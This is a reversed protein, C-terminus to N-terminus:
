DFRTIDALGVPAEVGATCVVVDAISNLVGNAIM